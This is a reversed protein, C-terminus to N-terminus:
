IDLHLLKAANKYFIKNELVRDGKCAEKVTRIATKRNGYPWDSAFLVRDAGLASIFKRINEPSHFSIDVWVNKFGGLIALTDRYKYLGAHGAIFKVNPFAAVLDRAYHIEGYSITQNTEKQSGLYYSSLGCHFLVPLNHPAFAEVAQLTKQGNLAAKQIIPHLKMGGAGNKVDDALSADLDYERTYDVGTFPIIDSDMEAAKKLDDFTVYPPIPMCATKDVGAEEMSQRLNELTATANRVRGAKATLNITKNYLWEDNIGPTPKHLLLESMSIIDFTRKKRVNKQYILDGGNPNLIDGLHSHIDIIM